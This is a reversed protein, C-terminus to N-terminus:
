SVGLTGCAVPSPVPGYGFPALRLPTATPTSYLPAGAKVGWLDQIADGFSYWTTWHPSQGRPTVSSVRIVKCGGNPYPLGSLGDTCDELIEVSFSDM